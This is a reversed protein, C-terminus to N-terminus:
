VQEVRQNAPLSGALEGALERILGTERCRSLNEPWALAGQISGGYCLRLASLRASALRCDSIFIAFNKRELAHRLDTEIAIASDRQSAYRTLFRTVHKALSKATCQLTADRLINGSARLIFQEICHRHERLHVSRGVWYSHCRWPKMMRDAARKCREIKIHDLLVTFEDGWARSPSPKGIRAVTDTSRLCKEFPQWV